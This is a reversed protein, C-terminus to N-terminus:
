CVLEGVELSKSAPRRQEKADIPTIRVGREAHRRRISVHLVLDADLRLECQGKTQAVVPLRRRAVAVVERRPERKRESGLIVLFRDNAASRADEIIIQRARRDLFRQDEVAGRCTREAKRGTHRKWFSSCCTPSM